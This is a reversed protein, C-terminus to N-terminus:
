PFMGSRITVISLLPFRTLMWMVTPMVLLLDPPLIIPMFIILVRLLLLKNGFSCPNSCIKLKRLFTPRDVSSKFHLLLENCETEFVVFDWFIETALKIGELLSRAEAVLPSTCNFDEQEQLLLREWSWCLEFQLMQMSKSGPLHTTIQTM